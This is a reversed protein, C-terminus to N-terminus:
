AHVHCIVHNGNGQYHISWVDLSAAIAIGRGNPDFGRDAQFSLYPQWDFGNGQDRISVVAGDRKVRYDLTVYKAQNQPMALRREIEAHWTNALLLHTKEAYSIGLNGHEIANVMLEHLGQSVAHRHLCYATIFDVIPAIEELRAFRFHAGEMRSSFLSAHPCCHQEM